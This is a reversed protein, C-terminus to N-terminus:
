IGETSAKAPKSGRAGSTKKAALEVLAKKVAKGKSVILKRSEKNERLANKYYNYLANITDERTFGISEETSKVVTCGDVFKSKSLYSNKGKLKYSKETEEMIPIETVILVETDINVQAFYVSRNKM